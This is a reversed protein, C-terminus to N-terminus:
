HIETPLAYIGQKKSLFDPILPLNSLWNLGLTPFKIKHFTLDGGMEYQTPYPEVNIRANTNFLILYRMAEAHPQLGWAGQKLSVISPNARGM